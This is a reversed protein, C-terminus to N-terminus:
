TQWAVGIQGDLGLRKSVVNIPQHQQQKLTIEGDTAIVPMHQRLLELADEV